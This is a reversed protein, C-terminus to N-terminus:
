SAPQPKRPWRARRLGAQALPARGFTSLLTDRWSLQPAEFLLPLRYEVERVYNPHQAGQSTNGAYPVSTAEAPLVTWPSRRTTTPHRRVVTRLPRKFDPGGAQTELSHHRRRIRSDINSVATPHGTKAYIFRPAHDARCRPQRKSCVSRNRMMQLHSIANPVALKGAVRRSTM